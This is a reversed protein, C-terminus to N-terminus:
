VLFTLLDNGTTPIFNKKIKVIYQNGYFKCANHGAYKKESELISRSRFINIYVYDIM